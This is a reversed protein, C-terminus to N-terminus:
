TLRSLDTTTAMPPAPARPPRQEFTNDKGRVVSTNESKQKNSKFQLKIPQTLSTFQSCSQPTKSPNPVTPLQFKQIKNFNSLFITTKPLPLARQRELEAGKKPTVENNGVSLAGSQLGINQTYEITVLPDGGDMWGDRRLWRGKRTRGPRTSTARTESKTQWQRQRSRPSM